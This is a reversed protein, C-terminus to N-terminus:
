AAVKGRRALSDVTVAALLVLATVIYQAAASLGVLGMGNNITAIVLGGLLAHVMKGHGGFLSTGGIVAAAVAYLVLQGGNVNSSISGLNSAYAIGAAGATMSCLAFCTIRMVGLNIGARRAAEANGGIAYVYRGFRTRTLLVTWAVVIAIVVPVVWPVGRLPTLLGRNANCVAVLIIGGVAVAAIKAVTLGFPATALGARRRSRDGLILLAGFLVVVIAMVLWGALVPMNDAVLGAVVPNEISITGGSSKGGLSNTLWLLVGQFGLLGALTVVFSPLRLKVVLVGMVAGIVAPVLLGAIMSPGWPWGKQSSLWVTFFGGIVGVFGASLDIEGLLLVFVEAMGFLVLSAGQTLLNVLNGASLFVSKEIQFVVIIVALGVLVPLVGSEGGRVRKWWSRVYDGFSDALVGAEAVDIERVDAEAETEPQATGPASTM